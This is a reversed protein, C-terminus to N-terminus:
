HSPLSFNTTRLRRAAAILFTLFSASIVAALSWIGLFAASEPFHSGTSLVKSAIFLGGGSILVMLGYYVFLHRRLAFLEPKALLLSAVLASGGLFVAGCIMACVKPGWLMTWHAMGQSGGLPGIGFQPCFLLTIGGVVIHILFLKAFLYAPAVALERRVSKIISDTLQPPPAVTEATLFKEFEQNKM